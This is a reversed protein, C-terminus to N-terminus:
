RPVVRGGIIQFTAWAVPGCGDVFVDYVGGEVLPAPAHTAEFQSPVTGYVVREGGAACTPTFARVRWVSRRDGGHVTIDLDNFTPTGYPLFGTRKVVFVPAAAEGQVGVDLGFQCAPLAFCALPALIRVIHKRNM